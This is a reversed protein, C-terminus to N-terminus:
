RLRRDHRAPRPVRRRRRRQPRGAALRPRRTGTRISPGAAVGCGVPQGQALAAAEDEVRRSLEHLTGCVEALLQDDDRETALDVVHQLAERARGAAADLVAVEDDHIEARRVSAIIGSAEHLLREELLPLPLEPWDRVSEDPFVSNIVKIGFSAVVRGDRVPAMLFGIRDELAPRCLNTPTELNRQWDYITSVDVLVLFDDSPWRYSDPKGERHLVSASFGADALTAELQDAIAQMRAGARRRAVDAAAQLGGKGAAALEALAVRDGRAREAVVAHLDLLVQRLAALEAVPPEDLLRWRELEALKDVQEVVQPILPAVAVGKFLNLFLNNPIMTGVFSVPDGLPFEGEELPGVAEIAIPLPALRNAAEALAIAEEALQRTPPKGYAWADGARRVLRTSRVVIERAAVLYETETRAAVAAVAARGRARNWAIEARSPLNRRDIAKDALPM